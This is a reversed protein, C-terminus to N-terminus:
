LRLNDNVKLNNASGLLINQASVNKNKVAIDIPTQRNKNFTTPVASAELLAKLCDIVIPENKQSVLVHLPTNGTTPNIVNPNANCKLLQKIVGIYCKECAKHLPASGEMDIDDLPTGKSVLLRILEGNDSDSSIAYHLCSKGQSDKKSANSQNNASIAENNLLWQVLQVNGKQASVM